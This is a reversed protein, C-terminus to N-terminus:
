RCRPRAARGIIARCATSRRAILAAHTGPRSVQPSEGDRHRGHESRHGMRRIIGRAPLAEDFSRHRFGTCEPIQGDLSRDLDSGHRPEFAAVGFADATGDPFGFEGVPPAVAPAGQPDIARHFATVLVSSVVLRVTTRHLRRASQVFDAFVHQEHIGLEFVDAARYGVLEGMGQLMLIERGQPRKVEPVVAVQCGSPVGHHFTAGVNDSPREAVLLANPKAGHRRRGAYRFARAPPLPLRLVEPCVLDKGVREARFQGEFPQEGVAGVTEVGQQFVRGQRCQRYKIGGM